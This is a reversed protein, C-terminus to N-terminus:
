KKTGKQTPKMSAGCNAKIMGGKAYGMKTVMGGMAYGSKKVMGGEAMGRATSGGPRRGRSGTSSGTTEGALMARAAGRSNPLGMERREAPSMKAWDDITVNALSRTAPRAQRRGRSGTSSGTTEGKAMGRAASGGPRRGRSGTEGSPELSTTTVKPTEVKTATPENRTRLDAPRAQPRVRPAEGGLGAPRSKPRMTPRDAAEARDIAASARSIVSDTGFSGSSKKDDAQNTTYSNGKWTFTKGSGKEKRAAAFAKGFTMDDYKAM